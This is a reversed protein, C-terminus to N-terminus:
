LKDEVILEKIGSIFIESYIMGDSEVRFSQNQPNPLFVSPIVHKEDVFKMPLANMAIPMNSKLANNEPTLFPSTTPTTKLRMGTNSHYRWYTIRSKLRIEFVPFDTKITGDPELLNYQQDGATYNIEIMALNSASYLKSNLLVREQRYYGDGNIELLYTGDEIQNHNFTDDTSFNLWVKDLKVMGSLRITKVIKGLSTSLTFVVNRVDSDREFSYYFQLPLLVRDGEHATSVLPYIRWNGVHSTTTSTIAEMVTGGIDSVEGLEYIRGNSFALVPVSFSPFVKTGEKNSNSFYYISPLTSNLRLNTFNKFYPNKVKVQYTFPIEETPTIFPSFLDKEEKAKIGMFFGTKTRVFRLHYDEMTKITAESPEVSLDKWIDYRNNQVQTDLYNTRTNDDQDFFSKISNQSLYFEHLIRVEFLKRYHIAALAPMTERNHFTLKLKSRM